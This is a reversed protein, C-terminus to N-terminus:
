SKDEYIIVYILRCIAYVSVVGIVVTGFEALKSLMYNSM